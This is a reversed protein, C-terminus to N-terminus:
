ERMKIMEASDELSTSTSSSMPTMQAEGRRVTSRDSQWNTLLECDGAGLFYLTLCQGGGAGNQAGSWGWRERQRRERCTLTAVWHSGKSIMSSDSESHGLTVLGFWDEQRRHSSSGSLVVLPASSRGDTQKCKYEKTFTCQVSQNSRMNHSSRYLPLFMKLHHSSSSYQQLSLPAM